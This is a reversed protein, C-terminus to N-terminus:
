PEVITSEQSDHEDRSMKKLKKRFGRRRSFATTVKGLTARSESKNSSENNEDVGHDASRDEWDSAVEGPLMMQEQEQEAAQVTEVLAREKMGYFVYGRGYQRQNAGRGCRGMRHLHGVVNGCFQLQVVVTVGPVDLGRAALDTCVLVPLPATETDSGADEHVRYKRFRELIVSRELLPIQAHYPACQIGVRQLAECAADCDAVSNLFIMVKEGQLSSSKKTTDGDPAVAETDFWEAVIQMREKKSEIEMWVTPEALGSHRARHLNDLAIRQAHPFKKRLYAEVSRLGYNPLTAAVFVHQTQPVEGRVVADLRDARRFGMLVNELPRIYGGDLLMDAEDIVVTPIDAFLAIHKPSLAWPGIAAPTALLLDIPPQTGGGLAMTQRFPLFDLPASLGGPLIALRVLDQPRTTGSNPRDEDLVRVDPLTSGGFILAARGGALPAAMRVVQQVLEKNPVLILARAYDYGLNWTPADGHDPEAAARQKRQLIDDILPLLYALTKGSGTECAITLNNSPIPPQNRSTASATPPGLIAAYSAAQIQTPRFLQQEQLRKLLVPSQVGLSRFDLVDGDFLSPDYFTGSTEEEATNTDDKTSMRRLARCWYQDGPGDRGVSGQRSRWRTVGSAMRRRPLNPPRWATVM